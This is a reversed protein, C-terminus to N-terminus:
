FPSLHSYHALNELPESPVPQYLLFLQFKFLHVGCNKLEHHGTLSLHSRNLSIILLLLKWVGAGVRAPKYDGPVSTFLFVWTGGCGHILGQPLARQSDTNKVCMESQESACDSGPVVSQPSPPM